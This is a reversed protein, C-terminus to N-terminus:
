KRARELFVVRDEIGDLRKEITGLKTTDVGSSLQLKGIDSRMARFESWIEKLVFPSVAILVAVAAAGFVSSIRAAVTLKGNGLLKPEGM